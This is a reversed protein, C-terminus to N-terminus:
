GTVFSRHVSRHQRALYFHSINFDKFYTLSRKSANATIVISKQEGTVSQTLTLSAIKLERVAAAAAAAPGDDM